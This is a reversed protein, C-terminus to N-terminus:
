QLLEESMECRVRETGSMICLEFIRFFSETM